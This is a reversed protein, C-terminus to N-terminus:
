AAGPLKTAALFAMRVPLWKPSMGLARVAPLDFLRLVDRAEARRRVRLRRYVGALIFQHM